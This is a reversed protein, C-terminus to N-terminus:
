NGKADAHASFSLNKVQCKVNVTTKKDIELPGSHGALLKNGVTGVVCYRFLYHHHAFVM